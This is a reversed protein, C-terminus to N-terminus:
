SLLACLCVCVYLFSFSLIVQSPLLTGFKKWPNLRVNKHLMFSLPPPALLVYLVVLFVSFTYDRGCFSILLYLVAIFARYDATLVLHWLKDLTVSMHWAQYNHQTCWTPYGSHSTCICLRCFKCDRWCDSNVVVFWDISYETITGEILNLKRMPSYKVKFLLPNTLQCTPWSLKLLFPIYFFHM